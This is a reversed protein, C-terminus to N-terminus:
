SLGNIQRIADAVAFLNEPPVNAQLNHVSCFVYGGNEGFIDCLRRVEERVQAPTGEMLTVQTDIGGGWFVLRDGFEKKLAEPHMDKANIQVPNICDFGAEILDSLLPLIAGCSHKFTKWTTHTHIWDTMKSYYPLYLERFTGSSCFQSDQTGFDTGCLNIVDIDNGLVTFVRNFNEIAIETQREFIAHIYDPRMVTSIYWEAIDRIGKPHKMHLAPILAIDGLATGPMSLVAGMNRAKLRDSQVKYYQLESEAIPGFEELNEKPDLREEVIEQQRIIGNYFYGSESMHGSAPAATDGQPFMLYDGNENRLETNFGGPVLVVQGWPTRFEKWRQQPTGFFDCSGMIGGVDIGLVSQLDEEIQGLMQYSDSVKIPHAELGFHRRLAEICRVHIGSVHTAGFDVCIRDSAHHILTTQLRQKSTM